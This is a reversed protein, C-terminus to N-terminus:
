SLTLAALVALGLAIRYYAFVHLGHKGLFSLMFRIAFLGSVFATIVGVTVITKDSNLQAITNGETLVKAIAGSIIPVCLLFSFRTAAVRDLGMFLGATITSGSRSVGPVIALAQAFGMTLAQKTTIDQLTQHKKQKKYMYEALLMIFGVVILNVCVLRVSRFTSEAASELLYGAVAAPVTAAILLWSLRTKESKIFVARAYAILDKGFFLVLAVLTGVHLALDFALGNEAVGLLHHMLILHGSSSVPIFETLGQVLGLLIAEIISM